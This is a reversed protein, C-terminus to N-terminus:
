VPAKHPVHGSMGDEGTAPSEFCGYEDDGTCWDPVGEAIDLYIPQGCNICTSEANQASQLFRDYFKEIGYSKLWKAWGDRMQAAKKLSIPM